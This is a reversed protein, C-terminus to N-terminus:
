AHIYIKFITGRDISSSVEMYHELYEFIIKTIYLGLGSSENQKKRGNSGTFCFDFIRSKEEPLIGLGFDQISLIIYDDERSAEVIVTNGKNSYKIANNIIQEVAFTFWKRDTYVCIDSDIQIKPYIEKQIFYNKQDNIVQKLMDRLNEKKILFDNEINDIRLLYLIQNLQYTMRDIEHKFIEEIEETQEQAVMKLVSLPTKMQHVWKNILLKYNKNETKLAKITDYHLKHLKEMRIKEEIALPTNGSIMYDLESEIESLLSRYMPYNRYFHIITGIMYIFLFLIGLYLFDPNKELITLLTSIGVCSILVSIILEFHQCFYLKIIKKMVQNRWSMDSM